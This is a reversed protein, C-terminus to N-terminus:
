QHHQNRIRIMLRSVLFNHWQIIIGKSTNINYGLSHFKDVLSNGIGGTAGSILIKKNKLNM